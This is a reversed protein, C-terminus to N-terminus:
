CLALDHIDTKDSNKKWPECIENRRQDDSDSGFQIQTAKRETKGEVILSQM